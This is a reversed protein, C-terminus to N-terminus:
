QSKILRNEEMLFIKRTIFVNLGLVEVGTNSSHEDTSTGGYKILTKGRTLKVLCVIVKMFLVAHNDPVRTKVKVPQIHVM